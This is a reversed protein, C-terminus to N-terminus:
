PLAAVLYALVDGSRRRKSTKLSGATFGSRVPPIKVLIMIMIIFAILNLSANLFPASLRLVSDTKETLAPIFDQLQTQM